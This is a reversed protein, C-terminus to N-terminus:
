VRSAPRPAETIGAAALEEAIQRHLARRRLWPIDEYLADRALPHRFAARGPETEVVLGCSMLEALGAEAEPAANGPLVVPEAEPAPSTLRSMDGGTFWVLGGILALAVALLTLMRSM